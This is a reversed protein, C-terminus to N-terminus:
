SPSLFYEVVSRVYVTFTRVIFHVNMRYVPVCFYVYLVTQMNVAKLRIENVHMSLNSTM